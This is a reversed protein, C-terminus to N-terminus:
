PIIASILLAVERLGKHEAGETHTADKGCLRGWGMAKLLSVMMRKTKLVTTRSTASNKLTM